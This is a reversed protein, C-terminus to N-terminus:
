ENEIPDVGSIEDSEIEDDDSLLENLEESDVVQCWIDFAGNDNMEWAFYIFSNTEPEQNNDLVPGPSSVPIGTIGGFQLIPFVVDGEEEDFLETTGPIHVSFGALVKRVRELAVHPTIFEQKLTGLLVSNINVITEPNNIDVTGTAITSQYEEDLFDKFSKLM